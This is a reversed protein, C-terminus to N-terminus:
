KKRGDPWMRWSEEYAEGEDVAAWGEVTPRVLWLYYVMLEGVARPLYRHIIKWKGSTNYGKHDRAVMVVTGNKMFINRGEGKGSSCRKIGLVEPSRGPGGGSQHGLVLVLGELEIVKAVWEETKGRDRVEGRKKLAGKRLLREALWTEGNVPWPNREDQM